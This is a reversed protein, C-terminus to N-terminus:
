GGSFDNASLPYPGEQKYAGSSSQLLRRTALQHTQGFAGVGNVALLSRCLSGPLPKAPAAEGLPETMVLTM